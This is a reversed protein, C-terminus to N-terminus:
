VRLAVGYDLRRSLGPVSGIPRSHREQAGITFILFHFPGYLQTARGATNPDSLSMNRRLSESLDWILDLARFLIVHRRPHALLDLPRKSDQGVGPFGRQGDTSYHSTESQLPVFVTVRNGLGDLTKV